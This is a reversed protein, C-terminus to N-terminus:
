RGIIGKESMMEQVARTTHVVDGCGWKDCKGKRPGGGRQRLLLTHCYFCRIQGM